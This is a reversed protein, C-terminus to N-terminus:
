IIFSKGSFAITKVSLASAVREIVENDAVSFLFMEIDYNNLDRSAKSLENILKCYAVYAEDYNYYYINRKSLNFITRQDYESMKANRGNPQPFYRESDINHFFFIWNLTYVTRSDYIIYDEPKYFSAIKSLSSVISFEDKTLLLNDSDLKEKFRNLREDNKQNKKFSQIGGWKQIIWYATDLYDDKLKKGLNRKLYIEKEHTPLDPVDILYDIKDQWKWNEKLRSKFADYEELIAQYKPDM